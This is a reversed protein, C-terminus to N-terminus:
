RAIPSTPKGGVREDADAAIIIPPLSTAAM